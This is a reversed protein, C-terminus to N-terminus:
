CVESILAMKNGHELSSALCQIALYNALCVVALLHYLLSKLGPMRAGSDPNKINISFFFFCFVPHFSPSKFHLAEARPLSSTFKCAAEM